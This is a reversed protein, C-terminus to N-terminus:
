RFWFFNLKEKNAIVELEHHDATTFIGGLDIATAVGIADALSIRHYIGKLRAANHFVPQSITNIIELPTDNIKNMINITEPLGIDSIFGYYVEMLNVVNIFLEIKGDIAQQFLNDVEEAGDEGKLLAVLACADLVYSTM